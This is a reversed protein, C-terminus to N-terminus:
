AEAAARAASALRNYEAVRTNVESKLFATYESEIQRKAIDSDKIIQLETEYNDKAVQLQLDLSERKALLDEAFARNKLNTIDELVIEEGNVIAENIDKREELVERQLRADELIRESESLKSRAEIGKLIEANANQDILLLEEKIKKQRELQEISAGNEAIDQQLKSEEELLKM